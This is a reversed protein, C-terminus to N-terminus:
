GKKGLYIAYGILGAAAAFLIYQKENVPLKKYFDLVKTPDDMFEKIQAPNQVLGMVTNDSSNSGNNNNNNEM